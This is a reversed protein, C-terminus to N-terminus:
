QASNVIISGESFSIKNMRRNYFCKPFFIGDVDNEPNKYSYFGCVNAEEIEKSNLHFVKAYDAVGEKHADHSANISNEAYVHMKWTRFQLEIQFGPMVPSNADIGLIFHISQYGNWKPDFYFKMSGTLHQVLGRDLDTPLEVEPYEEPNFPKKDTRVLPEIIFPIKLLRKIRKQADEDLMRTYKIFSNRDQRNLNCLVNLIKTALFCSLGIANDKNLVVFRIGFRDRIQSPNLNDAMELEKSLESELSKRRATINADIEKNFHKNAWAVIYMTAHLVESCLNTSQFTLKRASISKSLKDLFFDVIEADEEPINASTDLYDRLHEEIEVANISSTQTAHVYAEHILNLTKEQLIM